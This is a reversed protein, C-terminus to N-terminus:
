YVTAQALFGRGQVVEDTELVVVFKHLASLRNASSPKYGCLVVPEDEITVDDSYSYILVRDRECSNIGVELDLRYVPFPYKDEFKVKHAKNFIKAANYTYGEVSHTANQVM